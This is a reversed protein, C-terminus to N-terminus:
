VSMQLAEQLIEAKEALHHQQKDLIGERRAKLYLSCLSPLIEANYGQIQQKGDKFEIPQLLGIFDKNILSLLAQSDLFIPLQLLGHNPVIDELYKLLKEERGRYWGGRNRNFSSLVSSRSLVRRGDSLVACELEAGGIILPARYMAKLEGHNKDKVVAGTLDKLSGEVKFLEPKKSM